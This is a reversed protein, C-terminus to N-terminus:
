ILEGEFQFEVQYLSCSKENNLQKIIINPSTIMGYWLRSEQTDEINIRQGINNLIFTKLNNKEAKTLNDFRFSKIKAQPWSSPRVQNITGGLLRRTIRFTKVSLSTGFAPTKINQTAM